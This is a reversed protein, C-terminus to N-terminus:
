DTFAIFEAGQNSGFSFDLSETQDDRAVDWAFSVGDSLYGNDEQWAALDTTAFADTVTLTFYAEAKCLPFPAQSFDIGVIRVEDAAYEDQEPFLTESQMINMPVFVARLFPSLLACVKALNGEPDKDYLKKAQAFEPPLAKFDDPQEAVEFWDMNGYFRQQM